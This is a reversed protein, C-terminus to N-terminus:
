KNDIAERLTAQHYAKYTAAALPDYRKLTEYTVKAIVGASLIGDKQNQQTRGQLSPKNRLLRGIVTTTLATASNLADSRHGLSKYLSLFLKDRSM